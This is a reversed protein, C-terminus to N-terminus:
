GVSDQCNVGVYQIRERAVNRAETTAKSRCCHTLMGECGIAFKVARTDSRKMTVTIANGLCEPPLAMLQTGWAWCCSGTLRKRRRWYYKLLDSLTHTIEPTRPMMVVGVVVVVGM